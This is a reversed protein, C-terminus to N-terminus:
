HMPWDHLMDAVIIIISALTVVTTVWGVIRISNM